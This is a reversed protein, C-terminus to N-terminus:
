QNVHFTARVSANSEGEIDVTVVNAGQELVVNQWRFHDDRATDYRPTADGVRLSALTGDPVSAGVEIDILESQLTDGDRPRVFEATRDPTQGSLAINVEDSVTGSAPHQVRCAWAGPLLTAVLLFPRDVAQIADSEVSFVTDHAPRCALHVDGSIGDSEVIFELQIGDSRTDSDDGATLNAGPLPSTIQLTRATGESRFTVRRVTANGCRDVAQVALTHEGAALTVALEVAGDGPVEVEPGDDVAVTTLDAGAVGLRVPITLGDSTQEVGPTAPNITAGDEPFVLNLDPAIADVEYVFEPTRGRRSTGPESATAYVFNPGEYLDVILDVVRGGHDVQHAQEEVVLTVRDCDSHLRFQAQVGIRDPNM